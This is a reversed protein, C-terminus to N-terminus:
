ISVPADCQSLGLSAQQNLSSFTSQLVSREEILFLTDATTHLAGSELFAAYSDAAVNLTADDFVNQIQTRIATLLALNDEAILVQANYAALPPRINQELVAAASSRLSSLGRQEACSRVQEFQAETNEYNSVISNAISRFDEESQISGNIDSLLTNKAATYSAAGTETTLRELYSQGNFASSSTRSSLGGLGQLSTFAQQILSGFLANLSQGIEDNQVLQDLPIGLVRATVQNVQSAPNTIRWTGGSTLCGERSGSSYSVGQANPNFGPTAFGGYDCTGQSYFGDSTELYRNQQETATRAAQEDVASLYAYYPNNQPELSLRFLTNWGGQSFDGQLFPGIVDGLSCSIRQSFNNGQQYRQILAQRVPLQFPSCLSGSLEDGLIFNLAVNNAINGFFQGYNTIYGPGGDFGNNIWDIMSSTITAILAQSILYQLQDGICEKDRVAKTNSRVQADNVPVSRAIGAISGTIGAAGGISGLASSAAGAGAGALGGASCGGLGGILGGISFAAAPYAPTFFSLSILFIILVRKM